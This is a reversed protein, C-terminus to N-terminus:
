SLGYDGKISAVVIAAQAKPYYKIIRKIAEEAAATPTMGQRLNEVAQYSYFFNSKFIQEL